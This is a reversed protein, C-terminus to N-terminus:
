TQMRVAAYEYLVLSKDHDGVRPYVGREQEHGINLVRRFEVERIAVAKWKFLVTFTTRVYMFRCMVCLGVRDIRKQLMKKLQVHVDYM